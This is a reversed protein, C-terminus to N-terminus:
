GQLDAGSKVWDWSLMMGVAAMHKLIKIKM